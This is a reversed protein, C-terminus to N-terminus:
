PLGPIDEDVGWVDWPVDNMWHQLWPRESLLRGSRFILELHILRRVQINQVDIWPAEQQQHLQLWAQLSIHLEYIQDMLYSLQQWYRAARAIMRMDEYDFQHPQDEEVFQGNEDFHGYGHGDVYPEVANNVVTMRWSRVMRKLRKYRPWLAPNDRITNWMDRIRMLLIVWQIQQETLEPEAQVDANELHNIYQELDSAGSTQDPFRIHRFPTQDPM